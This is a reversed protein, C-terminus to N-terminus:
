RVTLLRQLEQAKLGGRKLLSQEFSLSQLKFSSQEENISDLDM